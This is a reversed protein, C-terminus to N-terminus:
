KKHTVFRGFQSCTETCMNIYARYFKLTENFDTSRNLNVMTKNWEKQAV